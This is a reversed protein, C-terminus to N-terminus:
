YFKCYFKSEDTSDPSVLQSQTKCHYAALDDECCYGGTNDGFTVSGGLIVVTITVSENQIADKFKCLKTNQAFIDFLRASKINENSVPCIRLREESPFSCIHLTKSFEEARCKYHSSSPFNDAIKVMADYYEQSYRDGHPLPFNDDFIDVPYYNLNADVNLLSSAPCYETFACETCFLVFIIFYAKFNKM